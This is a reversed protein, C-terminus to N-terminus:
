ESRIIYGNSYHRGLEYARNHDSVYVDVRMVLNGYDDYTYEIYGGRDQVIYVGLGEIYVTSYFPIDSPTAITVGEQVYDGSATIGTEVGCCYSCSCYYSVEFTWYEKSDEIVEEEIIMKTIEVEETVEEREFNENQFRKLEEIKAYTDKKFNKFEVSSIEIPIPTTLDVNIPSNAGSNLNFIIVLSLLLALSLNKKKM